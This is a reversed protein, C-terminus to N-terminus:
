RNQVLNNEFYRNMPKEKQKSNEQGCGKRFCGLAFHRILIPNNRNIRVPDHFSKGM